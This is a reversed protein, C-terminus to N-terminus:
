RLDIYDRKKVDVVAKMEKMEKMEEEIAVVETVPMTAVFHRNNILGVVVLPDIKKVESLTRFRYRGSSEFLNMRSDATVVLVSVKFAKATAIIDDTNFWIGDAQIRPSFAAVIRRFKNTSM